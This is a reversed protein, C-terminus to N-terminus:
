NGRRRESKELSKIAEPSNYISTVQLDEQLFLVDVESLSVFDGINKGTIDKISVSCYGHIEKAKENLTMTEIQRSQHIKYELVKSENPNIIINEEDNALFSLMHIAKIEEPKPFRILNIEHRFKIREKYYQSDKSVVPVLCLLGDSTVAKAEGLNSYLVSVKDADIKNISISVNPLKVPRIVAYLDILKESLLGLVTILAILLAISTNGLEIYRRWDQYSGCYLCKKATLPIESICVKCKKKWMMKM